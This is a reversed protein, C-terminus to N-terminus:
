VGWSFSDMKFFHFHGNEEGFVFHPDGFSWLGLSSSDLNDVSSCSYSM